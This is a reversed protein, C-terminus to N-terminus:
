RMRADVGVRGAGALWDRHVSSQGSSRQALQSRPAQSLKRVLEVQDHDAPAVRDLNAVVVAPLDVYHGVRRDEGRAEDRVLRGLSTEPIQARDQTIRSLLWREHQLRGRREPGVVIRFGNRLGPLVVGRQGDDQDRETGILTIGFEGPREDGADFAGDVLEGPVSRDVIEDDRDPIGPGEAARRCAERRGEPEAHGGHSRGGLDSRERASLECQVWRGEASEDLLRVGIEVPEGRDGLLRPGLALPRCARRLEGACECLGLPAVLCEQLRVDLAALVQEGLLLSDGLQEVRELSVLVGFPGGCM